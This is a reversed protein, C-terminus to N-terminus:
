IKTLYVPSHSCNVHLVGDSSFCLSNKEVDGFISYQDYCAGIVSNNDIKVSIETESQNNQQNSLQMVHWIALTNMVNSKTVNVVFIDDNICQSSPLNVCGIKTTNLRSVIPEIGNIDSQLYQGIKNQYM